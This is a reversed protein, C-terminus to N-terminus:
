FGASMKSFASRKKSEYRAFSSDGFSRVMLGADPSSLSLAALRRAPFDTRVCFSKM